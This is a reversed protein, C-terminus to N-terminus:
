FAEVHKDIRTKCKPVAFPMVCYSCSANNQHFSNNLADLNDLDKWMNAMNGTSYFHNVVNNFIDKHCKDCLYTIIKGRYVASSRM